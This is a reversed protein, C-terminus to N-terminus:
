ARQSLLEKKVDDLSYAFFAYAGGLKKAAEIIRMQEESITGGKKKVEILLAKGDLWIGHIDPWGKKMYRSMYKGRGRVHYTFLAGQRELWECIQLKIEGETLERGFGKM